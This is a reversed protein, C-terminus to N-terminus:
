RGTALLSAFGLGPAAPADARGTALLSAFGLGRAAPADARGTALLSAFGLGRAAPADARGTALLSAFGLGRAAPADARGLWQGLRLMATAAVAAERTSVHSDLEVTIGITGLEDAIWQTMTGHCTGACGVSAAKEGMWRALLRGAQRSAPHTVDIRDFAQHLSLVATPEVASLFRVVGRTEPESAARPGSWYVSGRASPRWSTPFNRNLDVGRANARTGAVAGDPNVSTLLWLAVGPPIESAALDSVVKRGGPESGHMQGIVVLRVPADPDGFLRATIPRGERSTAIVRTEVPDNGAIVTVPARVAHAAAAQAGLVAVAVTAVLMRKVSRRTPRSM